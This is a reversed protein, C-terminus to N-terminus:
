KPKSLEVVLAAAAEHVGTLPNARCFNEVWAIIAQSDTTRASAVGGLATVYGLVWSDVNGHVLPNKEAMWKGCSQTGAGYVTYM